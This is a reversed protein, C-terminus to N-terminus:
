ALATSISVFRSPESAWQDRARIVRRALERVASGHQDHSVGAVLEREGAPEPGYPRRNKDHRVARALEPARAEMRRRFAEQVRSRTRPRDVSVERIPLHVLRHQLVVNIEEQAHSELKRVPDDQVVDLIHYRSRGFAVIRHVVDTTDDDAAGDLQAGPQPTPRDAVILIHDGTPPVMADRSSTGARDPEPKVIGRQLSLDRIGKRIRLERALDVRGNAPVSDFRGSVLTQMGDVIPHAPSRDLTALGVILLM